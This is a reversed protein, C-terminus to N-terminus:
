VFGIFYIPFYNFTANNACELQLVRADIQAEKSELQEKEGISANLAEELDRNREELKLKNRQLKLLQHEVDRKAKLDRRLLNAIFFLEAAYNGSHVYEYQDCKLQHNKAVHSEIRKLLKQNEAEMLLKENELAQIAQNADETPM